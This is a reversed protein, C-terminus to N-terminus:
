SHYRRYSAQRCKDPGTPSRATGPRWSHNCWGCRMGLLSSASRIDVVVSPGDTLVGESDSMYRLYARRRTGVWVGNVEAYSGGLVQKKPRVSVALPRSARWVISVTCMRSGWGGLPLPVLVMRRLANMQPIRCAIAILLSRMEVGVVPYQAPVADVTRPTQARRM